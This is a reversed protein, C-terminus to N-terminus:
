HLWEQMGTLNGKQAYTNTAADFYICYILKIKAVLIRKQHGNPYFLAVQVFLYKSFIFYFSRTGIVSVWSLLSSSTSLFLSSSFYLDFSAEEFISDSSFKVFYISETKNFFVLVYKVSIGLLHTIILFYIELCLVCEWHLLVSMRSSFLTLIKMFKTTIDRRFM